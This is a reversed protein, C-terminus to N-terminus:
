DLWISEIKKWHHPIELNVQSNKSLINPVVVNEIKGIKAALISFTSNSCILYKSQSLLKMLEAPSLGSDDIYLIKHRGDEIETILKSAEKIDNSFVWIVKKDNGTNNEIIKLSNILFQPSLAGWGHEWNDNIRGLRYHFIVPSDEALKKSLENFRVSPNKLNLIPPENWYDFNQWFGNLFIILPRNELIIKTIRDKSIGNYSENLVFYISKNYKNMHSLFSMIRVYFKKALYGLNVYKIDFISSFDEITSKGDSHYSDMFSKNFVIIRDDVSAVYKAMENLFIQNGLGGALDVILLKKM